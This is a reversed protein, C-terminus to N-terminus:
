GYFKEQCWFGLIEFMNLLSWTGFRASISAIISDNSPSVERCKRDIVNEILSTHLKVFLSISDLICQHINLPHFHAFDRTWLDAFENDFRETHKQANNQLENDYLTSAADLM